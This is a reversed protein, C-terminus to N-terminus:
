AAVTPEEVLERARDVDLALLAKSAIAKASCRIGARALALKLEAMHLRVQEAEETEILGGAHKRM